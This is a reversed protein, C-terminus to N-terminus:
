RQAMWNWTVVKRRDINHPDYCIGFRVDPMGSTVTWSRADVNGGPGLVISEGSDAGDTQPYVSQSLDEDVVIQFAEVYVGSRDLSSSRVKGFARFVQADEDFAMSVPVGDMWSALVSYEHRDWGEASRWRKCGKFSPDCFAAADPLNRVVALEMHADQVGLRVTVLDNSRGQVLWAKGGHLHDPGRVPVGTRLTQPRAPYIIQRWDNDRAIQFEESGSAGIRFSGQWGGEGDPLMESFSETTFTGLLSYSHQFEPARLPQPAAACPRWELSCRGSRWLLRVEFLTGAPVQKDRGDLCWSRGAAKSDPGEIWIHQPAHDVTPYLELERSENLCLRFHECRTEGLVVHAVHRGGSAREMVEMATFATWSGSIYVSVFPDLEGDGGDDEDDDKRRYRFGGEYAHRSVDYPAWEERLVGAKSSKARGHVINEGTLFDMLGLTIPCQVQVQMKSPDSQVATHAGHKCKSWVDARANTGSFGFSSVGAYNSYLGTDAHETEFYVPFGNIDLHPNIEYLHVNPAACSSNVMHCCKLLGTLGACCELHGINSKASTALVPLERPEMVGRYAGVEIPDGLATGTGHCEGITIQSASVGAERLSNRIVAQQAMGNPATLTASRGDQNVACGMLCAIQKMSDEEDDSPKLYAGSFGDGRAYGNAGVDFTLCRGKPSLMSPGCLAIFAMPTLLCSIGVCLADEHHKDVCAALQQEEARRFNQVAVAVGVLSASCATDVSSAGGVMGLCHSLRNATIFSMVGAQAHGSARCQGYPKDPTSTASPADSASTVSWVNFESGTDGCYAGTNRGRLSKKTFGAKHLTMYGDQLVCRQGPSVFQAEENTIGFFDNDFMILEQTEIMASHIVYSKWPSKDEGRSCYIDVDFRDSPIEIYGDVGALFIMAFEDSDHANAPMHAHTAMVRTRRGVPMPPGKLIGLADSRELEGGAFYGGSLRQRDLEDDLVWTALSVANRTSPKCSYGIHDCRYVLLKGGSLPIRIPEAGPFTEERPHLVCEGGENDIWTMLCLRRSRLFELHAELVGADVDEDSLREPRLSAEEAASSFPVWVTGKRRGRSRFGMREATLPALARALHTLQQDFDALAWLDEPTGSAGGHELVSTKGSGERGLFDAAMEAKPPLLDPLARAQDLAVARAVEDAALQILCWGKRELVDSLEEAHFGLQDFSLPEGPPAAPWALDFGGEEPPPPEWERLCDRPILVYLGNFLQVFYRDFEDSWAVCTGHEGDVFVPPWGSSLSPDSFYPEVEGGVGFIEVLTGELARENGWTALM